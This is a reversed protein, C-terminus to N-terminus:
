RSYTKILNRDIEIIEHSKEFPNHRETKYVVGGVARFILAFKLSSNYYRIEFNDM